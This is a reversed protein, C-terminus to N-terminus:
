SAPQSKIAFHGRDTKTFRATEGKANIERLIASYLTAAPTQGGPSTWYGKATMAEIMAKTTMPTGAETLVKAAADLASLKGDTKATKAPKTKPEAKLEPATAPKAKKGKPAPAASENAAAAAEAERCGTAIWEDYDPKTLKRVLEDLYFREVDKDRTAMKTTADFAIAKGQFSMGLDGEDKLRANVVEILNRQKNEYIEGKKVATIKAETAKIAAPKKSM